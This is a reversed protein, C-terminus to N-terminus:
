RTTLRLGAIGAALACITMAGAVLIANQIGVSDALSGLIQPALLTSLSASLSMRANALDTANAALATATTLTLPWLNAVGLGTISLGVLRMDTEPALWFISFGFLALAISVVLLRAPEASRALQSGLIRGIIMGVFFLTSASTADSTTLGGVRELYVGSWFIMSWEVGVGFFAVGWFVWYRFPLNFSLTTTRVIRTPVTKDVIWRSGIIWFIILAAAGGILPARWGLSVAASGVALPALGALIIAVVNAETIPRARHEHHRDSLLAQQMILACAGASGMLFTALLTLAPAQGISLIVAGIGIGACGGWVTQPRGVFAAVREAFLGALVMGIAFVSLHMGRLSDSLGQEQAIFNMAPAVISQLYAYYALLAYLLLTTRDRQFPGSTSMM